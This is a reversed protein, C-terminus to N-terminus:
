NGQSKLKLTQIFYTTNLNSPYSLCYIDKRTQRLLKRFLILPYQRSLIDNAALCWNWLSNLCANTVWSNTNRNLNSKGPRMWYSIFCFWSNNFTSQVDKTTGWMFSIDDAHVRLQTSKFLILSCSSSSERSNINAYRIVKEPSAHYPM